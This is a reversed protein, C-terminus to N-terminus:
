KSCIFCEKLFSKKNVVRSNDNNEKEEKISNLKTKLKMNENESTDKWSFQSKTIGM